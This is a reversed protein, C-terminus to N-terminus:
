ITRPRNRLVRSWISCIRAAHLMVQESRLHTIVIMTMVILQYCWLRFRAWDQPGENNFDDQVETVMDDPAKEEDLPAEPLLPHIKNYVYDQMLIFIPHRGPQKRHFLNLVPSMVSNFATAQTVSLVLLLLLTRSLTALAM